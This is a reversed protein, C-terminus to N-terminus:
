FQRVAEVIVMRVAARAPLLGGLLGTLAALVMGWGLAGVGIQIEFATGLARFSLGNAFLSFLCGLVGGGLAILVSEIVFALQVDGSSFGLARLTGIERTRNAVATYMTNMGGFVAGVGMVGGIVVGIWVLADTYEALAAYYASEPTAEIRLLRLSPEANWRASVAAADYGPQVRVVASTPEARNYNLMLADLDAWVEADFATGPASLTGVVMWERDGFVVQDGLGVGLGAAAMQGLAVEGTSDPMRGSALTVQDHVQLAVPCVGRVVIPEAEEDAGARSVWTSLTVEPSVLDRNGSRMVEPQMRVNNVKQWSLLSLEVNPAGREVILINAPSGTAGITARLGETTSRIVVFVAVVLGIGLATLGTRVWRALLSRLNYRLPIRM